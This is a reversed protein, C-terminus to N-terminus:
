STCPSVVMCHLLIGCGGAADPADCTSANLTLAVSPANVVNLTQVEPSATVELVQDALVKATFNLDGAEIQQVTSFDYTATCRLVSAVSLEAPLSASSGGTCTYPTLGTVTSTTEGRYLTTTIAVGRLKVNGTNTVVVLHEVVDGAAAFCLFDHV